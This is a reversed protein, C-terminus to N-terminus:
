GTRGESDHGSHDSGEQLRVGAGGGPNRGSQQFSSDVKAGDEDRGKSDNGNGNGNGNDNSTGNTGNGTNGRGSTDAGSGHDDSGRDDTGSGHDDVTTPTGVAGQPTRAPTTSTTTTAPPVTVTTTTAPRADPLHVGVNDVVDAVRQQVPRPLAGAVGLGGFALGGVAGAVVACVAWRRRLPAAVPAIGERFLTALADGPLLAPTDAASSRLDDLFTDLEDPMEGRDVDGTSM